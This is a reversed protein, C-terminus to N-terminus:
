RPIELPTKLVLLGFSWYGFLRNNSKQKLLSRLVVYYYQVHSTSKTNNKNKNKMNNPITGDAAREQLYQLQGSYKYVQLIYNLIKRKEAGWSGKKEFM